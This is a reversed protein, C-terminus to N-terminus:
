VGEADETRFIYRLVFSFIKKVGHNYALDFRMLLIEIPCEDGDSTALDAAGVIYTLWCTGMGEDLENNVTNQRM